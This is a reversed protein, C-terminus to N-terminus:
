PLAAGDDRGRCIMKKFSEEGECLPIHESTTPVGVDTTQLGSECLGSGERLNQRAYIVIKYDSELVAGKESKFASESILPLPM